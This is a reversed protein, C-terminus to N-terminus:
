CTKPKRNLTIWSPAASIKKVCSVGEENFNSPCENLLLQSTQMIWKIRQLLKNKKAEQIHFNDEKEM